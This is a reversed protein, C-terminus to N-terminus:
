VMLNDILRVDGCFAALLLVAPQGEKWNELEQLDSANALALYDLRFGNVVLKQRYQQLVSAPEGARLSHRCEQLVEYLMPALARQAADLRRNRSSMALGDSERLTPCPVLTTALQEPLLDLLRQVVMCQQYDKLGMYLHTPQVLSLLRDMVRCVGQFHGPRYRGEWLLELSGLDYTRTTELGDPYIEKVPPLFLLDCGAEELLRIDAEITVPYKEYDAPDNFQTPNVFISAVSCDDGNRAEQILALHGAHLAGMTPVFGISRGQRRQGALWDHIANAEQFIIMILAIPVLILRLPPFLGM